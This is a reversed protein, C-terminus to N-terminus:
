LAKSCLIGIVSTLASEFERTVDNTGTLAHISEHLLSGSFDKLSALQNRKIIIRNELPVWCATIESVSGLEKRMVESIKIEKITNPKGGILRFIDDSKNFIEKESPTLNYPEVFQFEFNDQYERSYEGLDRIPNGLIDTQDQIKDRLNDPIAIIEYGEDKARDVHDPSSMMEQPTMFVVQTMSNLIKIAHEQVDSWKLEDHIQGSSYSRLDNVLSKIVTEDNTAILISKIRDSYASRGVNTRERNLAKKIKSDLSTINYSFLFNDEEAVKVGNLYINSISSSRELIDGYQTKALQKVNSFKLFLAKALAMDNDTVGEFVFETGIFNPDSTPTFYAHLTVIDEFDHKQSKELTIDGFRSRIMVTVKKRDFTALADKLGIGFKGILNPNSMKEKNEKQTFHEYTIGRGYDRIHWNSKDKFIDIDKSHTLVQEDLANAIIERLAHCVEWDVLITEINLDFMRGEMGDESARGTTNRDVITSGYKPTQAFVSEDGSSKDWTAYRNNIQPDVGPPVYPVPPQHTWDLRLQCNPCPNVIYSVDRGCQPCKYSKQM